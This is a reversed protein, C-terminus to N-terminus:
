WISFFTFPKATVFDLYSTNNAPAANPLLREFFGNLNGYAGTTIQLLKIGPVGYNNVEGTYKTFYTLSIKNYAVEPPAPSTGVGLAVKVAKYLAAIFLSVALPALPTTAVM